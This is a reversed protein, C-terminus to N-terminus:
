VVDFKCKLHVFLDGSTCAQEANAGDHIFPGLFRQSINSLPNFRCTIQNFKRWDVGCKSWMRLMSKSHKCLVRIVHAHWNLESQMNSTLKHTTSADHGSLRTFHVNFM